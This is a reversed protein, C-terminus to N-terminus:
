WGGNGWVEIPFAICSRHTRIFKFHLKICIIWFAWFTVASDSTLYGSFLTYVTNKKEFDEFLHKSTSFDFNGCNEM